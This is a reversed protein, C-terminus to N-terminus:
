ICKLFTLIQINTHWIPFLQELPFYTTHYLSCFMFFSPNISFFIMGLQLCLTEMESPYMLCSKRLNKDSTNNDSDTQDCYTSPFLTQRINTPRGTCKACSNNNSFLWFFITFIFEAKTLTVVKEMNLYSL